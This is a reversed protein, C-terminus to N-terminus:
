RCYPGSRYRAVDFHFHDRHYHNARPGLVTGFPGCAANQLRELVRGKRGRGWDEKVSIRQGNALTFGAIDVANGKAHESLRAGPRSNRTRCSYGAIVELSRVGGGMRGLTPKLGHKVWRKLAKATTCNITVPRELRVGDIRSVKVPNAIGCGRRKGRISPVPVGRIARDGCIAREAPNFAVPTAPTNGRAPAKRRSLAAKAAGAVAAVKMPSAVLALAGGGGGAVFRPRAQPRLDAHFFVPVTPDVRALRDFRKAGRARTAQPRPEPRLEARFFVPVAAKGGQVQSSPPYIVPALSHSEVPNVPKTAMPRPKPRLTAGQALAAGSGIVLLACLIPVRPMHRAFLRRQPGKCTLPHLLVKAKRNETPFTETRGSNQSGAERKKRM